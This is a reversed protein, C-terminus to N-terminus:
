VNIIYVLLYMLSRGTQRIFGDVDLIVHRFETDLKAMEM